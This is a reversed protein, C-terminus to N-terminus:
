IRREKLLTLSQFLMNKPNRKTPTFPPVSDLDDALHQFKNELKVSNESTKGFTAKPPHKVRGRQQTFGENDDPLSTNSQKCNQATDKANCHSDNELDIVESDKCSSTYVQRDFNICTTPM